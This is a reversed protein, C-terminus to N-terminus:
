EVRLFDVSAWYSVVTSGNRERCVSDPRSFVRGLGRMALESKVAICDRSLYDQSDPGGEAAWRDYGCGASEETRGAGKGVGCCM